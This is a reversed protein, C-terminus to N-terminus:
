SYDPVYFDTTDIDPINGYAIVLNQRISNGVYSNTIAPINLEDLWNQGWAKIRDRMVEFTTKTWADFHEVAYSKQGNHTREYHLDAEHLLARLNNMVNKLRRHPEREMHWRYVILVQTTLLYHTSKNRYTQRALPYRVKRIKDMGQNPCATITSTGYVLNEM